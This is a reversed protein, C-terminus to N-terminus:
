YRTIGTYFSLARGSMIPMQSKFDFRRVTTQRHAHPVPIADVEEGDLYFKLSGIYTVVPLAAAPAPKGPAGNAGPSPHALRERLEDRAFITAGLKGFTENGGTHDPHVHTNIVFRIPSSSVQKIAAVLKDAVPAFETDVVLAGDPGTLMGM